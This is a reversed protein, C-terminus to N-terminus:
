CLLETESFRRDISTLIRSFLLLDIATREGFACMIRMLPWLPSWGRGQPHCLQHPNLFRPSPRAARALRHCSVFTPPPFFDSRYPMLSVCWPTMGLEECPVVSAVSQHERSHSRQENALHIAIVAPCFVHRTFHHPAGFAGEGTPAVHIGVADGIRAFM